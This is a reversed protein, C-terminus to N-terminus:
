FIGRNSQILLPDTSVLPSVAKRMLRADGSVIM